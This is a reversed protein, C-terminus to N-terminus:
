YQVHCNLKAARYQIKDGEAAVIGNSPSRPHGNEVRDGCEVVRSKVNESVAVADTNICVINVEIENGAKHYNEASKAEEHDTLQHEVLAALSKRKM